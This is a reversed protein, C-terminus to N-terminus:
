VDLYGDFHAMVFHPGVWGIFDNPLEIRQLLHLNGSKRQGINHTTYHVLIARFEITHGGNVFHRLCIIGVMQTGSIIATPQDNSHNTAGAAIPILSTMLMCTLIAILKKANMNKGMEKIDWIINLNKAM